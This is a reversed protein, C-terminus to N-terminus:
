STHKFKSPFDVIV